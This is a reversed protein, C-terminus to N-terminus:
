STIGMSFQKQQGNKQQPPPSDSQKWKGAHLGANGNQKGVQQQRANGNHGRSESCFVLRSSGATLLYGM